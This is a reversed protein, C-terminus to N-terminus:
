ADSTRSDISTPSVAASVTTSAPGGSTGSVPGVVDAPAYGGVYRRPATGRCVVARAVRRVDDLTAYLLPVVLLTFFTSTTLGGVLVVALSKYDVGEGRQPFIMLPLLGFVTTLATMWIPRFRIHVSRVIAERRGFGAARQRNIYDVLVIANNVVIGVLMLMGIMGVADLDVGLAVLLWMSGVFAFPISLLVSLPLVWSEFLLGMVFFVLFLAMALALFFNKLDAEFGGADRSSRLECGEPLDLRGLWYMAKKRASFVDGGEVRASLGVTMRGNVRHIDGSGPLMQLSALSSLPAARGDSGFVLIDNLAEVNEKDADAYRIWFSRERDDVVFDPLTAGRLAWSVMRSVTTTDIGRHQAARRNVLIRVEEQEDDKWRQVERLEPFRARDKLANEVTRGAKDLAELDTGEIFIRLRQQGKDSGFDEFGLHYTVGALEPLRPRLHDFFEDEKVRHGTKPFMNLTGGQSDFWCTISDIAFPKGAERIATEITEFTDNAESLTFNKPLEVRVQLRSPGEMNAAKKGVLQFALVTSALFAACALYARGRRTLAWQLVAVTGRNALSWKARQRRSARSAAGNRRLSWTALRRLWIAGQPIFVLAVVLSALVSVCLPLGIAATIVRFRPDALFILPLFVMVTTLTALSVALGVERVGEIAAGLPPQGQETKRLINEVVVISNDVLMGIGLSLGMLSLLNFSGGSFYIWIVTILLSFPIALFVLMTMGLRRFFLFLVIVAFLGGWTASGRLSAISENIMEGQDLWAHSEIGTVGPITRRLEAELDGLVVRVRECVEVANATSEKSVVVARALQGNVRAMRDRVARRERITAFDDITLRGAPFARVEAEDRFQGDFRVLLERDGDRVKGANITRNDGILRQVLSQLDVGYAFVQERDLAIEVRKDLVGWVQVRAVGNVAELRKRIVEDFIHDLDTQERRRPDIQIGLSVIYVPLAAESERWVHYQDMGEPWESRARDIRDRVEPIMEDLDYSPDFELRIRCSRPGSSTTVRKLGPLTRLLDECPKAVQQMVEQPTADPVPIWIGCEPSTMGDPILQLRIRPYSLVGVVLTAVFLMLISVPRFITSRLLWSHDAAGDLERM